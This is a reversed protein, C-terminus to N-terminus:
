FLMDRIMDIYDQRYKATAAPDEYDFSIMYEGLYSSIPNQWPVIVIDRENIDYSSLIAKMEAASAGKMAMLEEFTKERNTGSLLGFSYHDKGMQWVYVELGKSTDLDFYDPYKERLKGIDAAPEGQSAIGKPNIYFMKGAKEYDGKKTKYYRVYDGNQVVALREDMFVTIRYNDWIFFQISGPSSPAKKPAKVEKWSVLDLYKALEAGGVYGPSIIGDEDMGTMPCYIARVDTMDAVLSCANEYNLFSLDPEANDPIVGFYERAARLCNEPDAKSRTIDLAKGRITRPFKARIDDAYYSGDRPEWYEIVKYVSSDDDDGSTDFTIAAPIHSGSEPRVDRGDFSYEEYLVFAYVTTENGSESILLVDYDVSSFRGEAQPSRNHEIVAMDVSVALKGSLRRDPSPDTMLCLALVACVIVAILIIRFAPKRYNLVGKVREKVGAEGFALPCAAIRKRPCSCDLLAQSYASMDDRDMERIVKEDCATEIDRCLLIYAIWCLPNFWHFSLLMFGLPKWWHDHRRLHANEHRIVYGRTIDDMSSPLYVAPRFVGLIFPSRVDDCAYIREGVPLSASVTKRLKLWSALAYTLMAAAGAIWIVSALPLIIQLPNVSDTLAPSLSGAIVPNVAENVAPIGSDVAPLRPMAIDAPITEASPILSFVSELSFPSVLRVAVLGWLLCIIWRPARRLLLRALVVAMILWGATISMNVIRIFVASMTM